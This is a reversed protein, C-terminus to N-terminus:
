RGDEFEKASRREHRAYVWHKAEGVRAQGQPAEESSQNAEAGSTVRFRQSRARGAARAM